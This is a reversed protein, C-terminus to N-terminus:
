SRSRVMFGPPGRQGVVYSSHWAELSQSVRDPHPGCTLHFCADMDAVFSGAAVAKGHIAIHNFGLSAMSRTIAVFGRRTARAKAAKAILEWATACSMRAVDMFANRSQRRM